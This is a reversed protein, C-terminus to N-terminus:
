DRVIACVSEGFRSQDEDIPWRHFDISLRLLAIRDNIDASPALEALSNEANVAHAWMKQSDEVLRRLSESNPNAERCKSLQKQRRELSKIFRGVDAQLAQQDKVYDVSSSRRNTAFSNWLSLVSVLLALISVVIPLTVPKM